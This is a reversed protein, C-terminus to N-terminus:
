NGQRQLSTAVICLLSLLFVHRVEAKFALWREEVANKEDGWGSRKLELDRRWIM